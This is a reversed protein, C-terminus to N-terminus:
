RIREITFQVGAGGGVTVSCGRELLVFRPAWAPPNVNTYVADYAPDGNDYLTQLSVACPYDMSIPEDDCTVKFIPVRM